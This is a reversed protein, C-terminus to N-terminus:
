MHPAHKECRGGLRAGCCSCRSWLRPAFCITDARGTAVGVAEEEAPAQQEEGEAPDRVFWFEVESTTETDYNTATFTAQSDRCKTHERQLGEVTDTAPPGM